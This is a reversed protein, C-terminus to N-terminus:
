KVESVLAPEVATKEVKFKIRGIVQGRTTEVDVRWKGARPNFVTSYTRFGGDRGGVISLQIKGYDQWKKLSEDYYQWHHIVNTDLDAPSFIASYIYVPGGASHFVQYSKFYDFVSTQEGKVSYKGPQVKTIMHYAGVDQLSLPIPPILNTFYLACLVTAIGGISWSLIKKSENFQEGTTFRLLVLFIFIIILSALTSLVFMWPGIQRLVLPIAFIAFAYIAIFFVSIQFSLRLYHKKLVENGIMAAALLLLFPWAAAFNSSRSYFVFFTSFLGGLAFQIIVLFWFHARGPVEEPLRKRELINLAGICFATVVLLIIIYINEAWLDVRRLTLNDLIFGGILAVTSVHGEHKGYWKKFRPFEMPYIKGGTM